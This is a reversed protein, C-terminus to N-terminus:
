EPLPRQRIRESEIVTYRGDLRIEALQHLAMIVEAAHQPHEPVFRLYAVGLPAPLGRRYILEGYDRDFTLLIRNERAALSLVSPDEAGPDIEIVAKVDHGAARLRRISSVPFNENALFRM